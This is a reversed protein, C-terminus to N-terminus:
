DGEWIQQNRSGSTQRIFLVKKTALTGLHMMNLVSSPGEERGKEWSWAKETLEEVARDM